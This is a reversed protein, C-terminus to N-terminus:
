DSRHTIAAIRIASHADRVIEDAHAETARAIADVIDHLRGVTWGPTDQITQGPTLLGPASFTALDFNPRRAAVLTLILHAQLGTMSAERARRTYREFARECRRALAYTDRVAQIDTDPDDHEAALDDAAQQQSLTTVTHEYCAVRRLRWLIHAIRDALTHELPGSPALAQITARHHEAWERPSEIRPIVPSSSYLGHQTTNHSTAAKGQPTRPGTSLGANKRNADIQRQTAM